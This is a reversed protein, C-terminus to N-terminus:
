GRWRRGPPRNAPWCAWLRLSRRFPNPVQQDPQDASPPSPALGGSELLSNSHHHHKEITQSDTHLEYSDTGGQSVFWGLANPHNTEVVSIAHKASDVQYDVRGLPIGYLNQRLVTLAFGDATRKLSGVNPVDVSGPRADVDGAFYGFPGASSHAGDLKSIQEFDRNFQDIKPEYAPTGPPTQCQKQHWLGACQIECM